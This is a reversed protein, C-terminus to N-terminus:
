KEVEFTINKSDTTYNELRLVGKKGELEPLIQKLKMIKEDIHTTSGLKVRAEDYYLTIQDFKDFYIKDAKIEYKNLLQTLELIQKFISDDEVPLKELLVIHDFSLGMIQPIGLTKVDSSEVITGDKDFYFYQGLYEVYGAMAKEYVTIKVSDAATIKVNMSEIFPIDTIEKNRYKLALYISNRGWRGGLVMDQIEETSYHVNGEVTVTDVTFIRFVLLICLTMLAFIGLIIGPKKFRRIWTMDRRKHVKRIKHRNQKKKKKVIDGLIQM